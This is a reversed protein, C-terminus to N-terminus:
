IAVTFGRAEAKAKLRQLYDICSDVGGGLAALGIRDAADIGGVTGLCALLASECVEAADEPDDALRCVDHISQHVREGALRKLDRLVDPALRM